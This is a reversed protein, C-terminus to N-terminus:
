NLGLNSSNLNLTKENSRFHKPLKPFNLFKIGHQRLFNPVRSLEQSINKLISSFMEATQANKNQENIKPVNYVKSFKWFKSFKFFGLACFSKPSNKGPHQFFKLCNQIKLIGMFLPYFFDNSGLFSQSSQFIIITSNKQSSKNQWIIEPVTYLYFFITM